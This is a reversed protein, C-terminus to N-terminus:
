LDFEIWRLEELVHAAPPPFALRAVFTDEQNRAADSSAEGPPMGEPKRRRIVNNFPEQFVTVAGRGQAVGGAEDEPRFVPGVRAKARLAAPCGAAAALELDPLQDLCITFAPFAPLVVRPRGEANEEVVIELQLAKGRFRPKVFPERSIPLSGM